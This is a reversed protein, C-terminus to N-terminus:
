TKFWFWPANLITYLPGFHHTPIKTSVPFGFHYTSANHSFQARFSGRFEFCAVIGVMRQNDRWSNFVLANIQTHQFLVLLQLLQASKPHQAGAIVPYDVTRHRCGTHRDEAVIGVQALCSWRDPILTVQDSSIDIHNPCAERSRWTNNYPM